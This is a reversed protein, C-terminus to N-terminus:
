ALAVISLIVSTFGVLTLLGSVSLVVLNKPHRWTEGSLRYHLLGPVLLVLFSSCFGGLFGFLFLIKPYFIAIVLTTLRLFLTSGIHLKLSPREQRFYPFLWIAM